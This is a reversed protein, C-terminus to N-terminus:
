LSVGNGGWSQGRRCVRDLNQLSSKNKSRSSRCAHSALWFTIDAETSILGTIMGTRYTTHVTIGGVRRFAGNQLGLARSVLIVFMEVRFAMGSELALAAAVILIVEIGMVTSSIAVIAV